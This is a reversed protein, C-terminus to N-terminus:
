KDDRLSATLVTYAPPHGELQSQIRDVIPWATQSIGLSLPYVSWPELYSESLRNPLYASSHAAAAHGQTSSKQMEILAQDSGLMRMVGVQDNNSPMLLFLAGKSGSDHAMAGFVDNTGASHIQFLLIVALSRSKLIQTLSVFNELNAREDQNLKLSDSGVPAGRVYYLKSDFQSYMSADIDSLYM